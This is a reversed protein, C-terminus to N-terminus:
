TLGFRTKTANYNQLVESSSLARNHLHVLAIRGNLPEASNLRLGIWTASNPWDIKVTTSASNNLSGNIYLYKFKLSDNYIGVVYAWTNSTIDFTSTLIDNTSTGAWNHTYFHYKPNGSGGSYNDLNVESYPGSGSQAHLIKQGMPTASTFNVWAGVTFSDTISGTFNAEAVYDNTGDFVISGFNASSYTPGNTLTGNNSGALDYWTTSGSVYSNADAANLYLVLGDTVMKGYSHQVAM